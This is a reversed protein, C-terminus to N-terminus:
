FENLVFPVLLRTIGLFISPRARLAGRWFIQDRAVIPGLLNLALGVVVM